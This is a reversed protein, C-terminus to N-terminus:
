LLIRQDNRLGVILHQGLMSRIVKVVKICLHRFYLFVLSVIYLYVTLTEQWEYSGLKLIRCDEERITATKCGGGM